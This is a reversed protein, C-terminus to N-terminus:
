GRIRLGSVMDLFVAQLRRRVNNVSKKNKVEKSM